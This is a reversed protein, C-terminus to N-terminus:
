LLPMSVEENYDHDMCISKFILFFNCPKYLMKKVLCIDKWHNVLPLCVELDHDHISYNEGGHM